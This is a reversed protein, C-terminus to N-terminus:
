KESRKGQDSTRQLWQSLLDSRYNSTVAEIM